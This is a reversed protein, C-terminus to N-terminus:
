DKARLDYTEGCHPCTTMKPDLADLKGQEKTSAPSFDPEAVLDHLELDTFGTLGVDLDAAEIAALESALIDVDWGANLPLKNDLIALVRRREEDLGEVVLVPVKEVGISRAAALRGHGAVITYDDDVLIPNTWGFEVLSAAIQEIQEDSHTRANREYESLKGIPVSKIRRIAPTATDTM